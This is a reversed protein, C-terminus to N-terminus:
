RRRDKRADEEKKAVGEVGGGGGHYSPLDSYVLQVSMSFRITILPTYQSWSLQYFQYLALINGHLVRGAKSVPEQRVAADWVLTLIEEDVIGTDRQIKAARLLVLGDCELFLAGSNIVIVM